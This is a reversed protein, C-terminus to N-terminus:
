MIFYRMEYIFYIGGAILGLGCIINVFKLILDGKESQLYGTFIQTFTGALILVFSYGLAYILILIIGEFSAKSMALSLVPSVYAISCPGVALGSLIGLIIAGKLNQSETGKIRSNIRLFKINLVGVLNLGMLIFTIAVILTLINEHGNFLMGIGSMIFAILTLNFIIGICFACSIQFAKLKTPTDSNSVYGVVLPIMSIGCPSLIVSAIGWLFVGLYQLVGASFILEFIRDSM